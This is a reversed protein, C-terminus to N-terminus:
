AVATRSLFQSLIEYTREPQELFFLHGTGPIVVLRADPIRDALPDSSAGPIVRDDDGTLVLTPARILALRDYTDHALVADIQARYGAPDQVDGSKKAIFSELLEADVGHAFAFPALARM